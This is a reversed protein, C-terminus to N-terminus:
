RDVEERLKREIQELSLGRTEFVYKYTFAVALAGVAAFQAFLLEEGLLLRESEFSLTVLLNSAFNSLTGLSLAASRVRLPFIESLVLWTLPGFGVQYAGVFLFMSSIIALQSPSLSFALASSGFMNDLAASGPGYLYTLLLLSVLVGTNGLLLLSRRGFRPNEVLYASVTTM